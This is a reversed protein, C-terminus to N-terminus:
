EKVVKVRYLIGNEAKLRIFYVGTQYSGMSLTLNELHPKVGGSELIQGSLSLIDYEQIGSSPLKVQVEEKVPIPFAKLVEWQSIQEMGVLDTCGVMSFEAASAWENGNVESFAMLKFFRGNVSEEFEITQPAATNEFSGNSMEEWEFGNESVYLTYDQIRGNEGDQRPLYTFSFLQYVTGLDVIMEHPYPDTGNSWRTHWITEPDDDFAMVALGPYNVEESDVYFLDWIDKPLSAPNDCNDISSCGSAHIMNPITKSYEQGEKTITLSVSYYGTDGLVVRPNRLDADDIYIPEPSIEWHWEAGEHNMMSHDNFPITDMMCDFYVKEVWPNVLVGMNDVSLPSEWVGGSGGVRLKADRYFPMAYNVQFGAPYGDDFSEWASSEEERIFVKATKGNRANTFLYVIDQMNEDIQIVMCKTYEDLGGTWDEWTDGGDESRFVEGIDNSWTGNSLCAYIVNEDVPSIVFQTKGKWYSGGYESTTLSPKAEWTFGGDISRHLGQGEVDAFIVLPNSYSIDIYRIHGGFDHLQDFTTGRDVSKWIADGEGLFITGYYNPHFVLNSRRGGYEDMNPYKSFIFRGEPEGEATAPLIWGNGLDNFAAHRSEGAIIWGTPSEAGGMRLAKEGYFDAMATNGNHYRGGVIIDENWGQHFGWMDSGILGYNRSFYNSTSSFNDITYSFGGDSAIWTNGDALLKMDQMDPHISYNGTYGGIAQFQAGANASKYLTTTGVFIIEEDIPSIELVLDFYGQGNNLPLQSTNGLTMLSWQGTNLNAKYLHPTNDVGLMVCLLMDPNAETVALLGGSNLAIDNPFNLDIEFSAGGDSSHAIAFNGGVKTIGFIRNSNGRQIAVGWCRSNWNRQWTNGGDESIQIGNDAAAIIKDPNQPDIELRDTHFQSGSALMPIWSMGGDVTKHIQNGASVYVVDPNSPHIVTAAVGGGFSYDLGQQIWTMGNDMSKSVFGTETGCFIINYDTESVDFSYVNVQWPCSSPPTSSGNENLWFTEKPGLFSWNSNSKDTNTKLELQSRRLNQAYLNLDPMEISGDELVYDAVARKWIKYYRTIASKEAGNKLSWQDYAKVLEFYNAEEQYLMQAWAPYTDLYAPKYTKIIGPLEDYQNYTSQSNVTSAMMIFVTSILFLLSKKM